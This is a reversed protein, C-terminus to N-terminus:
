RPLSTCALYQLPRPIGLTLMRPRSWVCATRVHIGDKDDREGAVYKLEAFIYDLQADTLANGPWSDEGGEEARAFDDYEVMEARWKAVLADDLVKEWWRSKQRIMGSLKRMRLEVLTVPERVNFDFPSPFTPRGKQESSGM